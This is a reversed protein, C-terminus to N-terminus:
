KQPNLLIFADKAAMEQSKKKSSGKGKWMLTDKVYVWTVYTKDHDPGSDELVEYRPTTEYEWQSYEQFLTKYDKIHSTSLIEELTSYINELIFKKAEQIGLDLYIAWIFSEVCNALLYDNQRWGTQEEWKWLLLYESFHLWQWVIALNKWRVISSRIDTLEGETKEPFDIYLRETIVLELVADWLFELRENHEPAKDPRENVISRHIFALIYLSTDKAQIGLSEALKQYVLHM